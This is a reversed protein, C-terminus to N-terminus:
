ETIYRYQLFTNFQEKMTNFKEVRGNEANVRATEATLRTSEANARTTEATSRAVEADQRETEKTQRASENSKRTNENSTRNTEADQRETEKTQRTSENTQRSSENSVRTSEANVRVTEATVRSSEANVRNTENAKRTNENAMRTNEANVRATENTRRTIEEENRAAEASLFTEERVDEGHAFDEQRETEARLYKNERAQEATAYRSDRRDEASQYDRSRQTQADDFDAQRQTENTSFTNQRQSENTNFTEQRTNEKREFTNQRSAENNAFDTNRRAENTEFTAQRDAENARFTNQMEQFKIQADEYLECMEGYKEDMQAKVKEAESKIAQIIKQNNRYDTLTSTVEDTMTTVKEYLENFRKEIERGAYAFHARADKFWEAFEVITMQKLEEFRIGDQQVLDASLIRFEDIIRLKEKEIADLKTKFARDITDYKNLYDRMWQEMRYLADYFLDFESTSVVEDTDINSDEIEITFIPFSLVSKNAYTVVIECEISPLTTLMQRTLPVMVTSNDLDINDKDVAKMVLHGDPKYVWIDVRADTLDLSVDHVTLEIALMRSNDDYQKFKLPESLIAGNHVDLTFYHTDKNLTNIIM